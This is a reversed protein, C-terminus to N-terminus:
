VGHSQVLLRSCTTSCAHGGGISLVHWWRCHWSSTSIRKASIVRACRSSSCLVVGTSTCACSQPIYCSVRCQVSVPTSKGLNCYAVISPQSVTPPIEAWTFIPGCILLFNEYFCVIFSIFKPIKYGHTLIQILYIPRIVMHPFEPWM